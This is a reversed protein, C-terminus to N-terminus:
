GRRRGAHERRKSEVMEKPFFLPSRSDWAAFSAKRRLDPAPFCGVRSLVPAEEGGGPRETEYAGSRSRSAGSGIM